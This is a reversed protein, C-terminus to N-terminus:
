CLDFLISDKNIRLAVSMKSKIIAGKIWEVAQSSELLRAISSSRAGVVLMILLLLAVPVSPPPPVSITCIQISISWVKRPSKFMVRVEGDPVM